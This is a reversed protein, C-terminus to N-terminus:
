TMTSCSSPKTSIGIAHDASSKRPPITQWAEGGTQIKFSIRWTRDTYAPITGPGTTVDVSVSSNQIPTFDVSWPASANAGSIIRDKSWTDTKASFSISSGSGNAIFRFDAYESETTTLYNEASGGYSIWDSAVAVLQSLALGVVLIM